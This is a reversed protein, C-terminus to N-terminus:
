LFGQFWINSLVGTVTSCILGWSLKVNLTLFNGHTESKFHNSNDRGFALSVRQGQAKRSRSILSTRGRYLTSTISVSVARKSVSIESSSIWALQFSLPSASSWVGTLRKRFKDVGVPATHFLFPCSFVWLAHLCKLCPILNKIIGWALFVSWPRHIPESLCVQM